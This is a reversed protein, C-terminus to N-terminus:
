TKKALAVDHKGLHWKKEEKKEKKKEENEEHKHNEKLEKYKNVHILNLTHKILM